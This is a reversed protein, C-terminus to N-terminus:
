DGGGSSASCPDPDCSTATSATGAAATCDAPTLEECESGDDDPVCCIAIQPPPTPQCPNADCSAGQVMTGGQAACEAASVDDECEVEPNDDVFAGTASHALCCVSNPPPPTTACPNPLCSTATTPTGGGSTCEAATLDECESEGDDDQLCCGIASDTNDDPMQGELVDDGQDDRVEIQGGQPDVGLMAVRGKPKTSFKATGRGAANTTLTGIKIKNVVVDFTKGGALHRGKVTFTGTAATKLLLRAQGHARPAHATGTLAKTISVTATANVARVGILAAGVAVAMALLTWIGSRRTMHAGEM